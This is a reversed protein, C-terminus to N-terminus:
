TGTKVKLDGTKSSGHANSRTSDEDDQEKLRLIGNQIAVQRMDTCQDTEDVIEGTLVELVDELTIIGSVGGYEDVVMALHVCSTKFYALLEDAPTEEKFLRVPEVYDQVLAEEDTEEVLLRLMTSKLIIGIIEDRTEGVVVIRSHESKAVSKAALKIPEIGRIWTMATRPTMIEHASVDDLEFVKGIMHNEHTDIIGEKEAMRSLARIEQESTILVPKGSTFLSTFLEILWVVPTLIKTMYFLPRASYTIIRVCFREGITKPLIEAFLIVLVTLIFPFAIALTGELQQAALSAVVFTGVINSINNGIVITSIPRAPNERIDQILKGNKSKEGMQRAKTVPLSFIAAEIMSFVSSAILVIIVAVFLNLM